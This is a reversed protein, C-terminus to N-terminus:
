SVKSIHALKINEDKDKAAIELKKLYPVINTDNKM